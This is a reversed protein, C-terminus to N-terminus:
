LEQAPKRAWGSRNCTRGRRVDRRPPSSVYDFCRAMLGAAPQRVRGGGMRRQRRSSVRSPTWLAAHVLPAPCPAFFCGCPTAPRPFSRLRRVAVPRQGWRAPGPCICAVYSRCPHHLIHLEPILSECAERHSRPFGQVVVHLCGLHGLAVLRRRSHRAGRLALWERGLKTSCARRPPRCTTSLSNRPGLARIVRRRGWSSCWTLMEAQQAAHANHPHDLGLAIPAPGGAPAVRPAPSPSPRRRRRRRRVPVHLALLLRPIQTRRRVVHPLCPPGYLASSTTYSSSALITDHAHRFGVKPSSRV